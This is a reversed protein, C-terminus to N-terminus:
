PSYTIFLFRSLDRALNVLIDRDGIDRGFEFFARFLATNFIDFAGQGEAWKAAEHALRSRPQIPPMKLPMNMKEALPYVHSNWANTLYDGKPDLTPLPEPRLEFSRWQLSIESDLLRLKELAPEAM